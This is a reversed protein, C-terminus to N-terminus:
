MKVMSAGIVEPKGDFGIVEAAPTGDPTRIARGPNARADKAHPNVYSVPGGTELPAVLALPAPMLNANEFFPEPATIQIMAISDARVVRVSKTGRQEPYSVFEYGALTTKFAGAVFSLKHGTKLVLEVSVFDNDM